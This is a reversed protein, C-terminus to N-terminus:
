RGMKRSPKLGDPDNKLRNKGIEPRNSVTWFDQNKQLSLEAWKKWM